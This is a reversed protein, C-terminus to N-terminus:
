YDNKLTSYAALMKDELQKRKAESVTRRPVPQFSVKFGNRDRIVQCRFATGAQASINDRELDAAAYAAVSRRGEQDVLRLTAVGEAVQDIHGEFAIVAEEARSAEAQEAPRHKAPVAERLVPSLRPHPKPKQSVFGGQRWAEHGQHPHVTSVQFFAKLSHGARQNRLPKKTEASFRVPVNATRSRARSKIEGSLELGRQQKPFVPFEQWQSHTQGKEKTAEM